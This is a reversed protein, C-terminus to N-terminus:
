ADARVVSAKPDHWPSALQTAIAITAATMFGWPQALIYWDQQFPWLLYLAMSFTVCVATTWLSLRANRLPDALRWWRFVLMLFGFYTLYSLLSHTDGDGAPSDVFFPRVEFMHPLEVVLLEQSAFAFVGLALGIVMMWFRRLSSEGQTGEWLKTPIMVGWTGVISVVSLWAYRSLADLWASREDAFDGLLLSLVLSMVLCVVAGLVMSGLLEAFRERPSKLPLAPIAQRRSHRARRSRQPSVQPRVAGDPAAANAAAVQVAASSQEASNTNTRPDVFRTVVTWLVRYFLYIVGFLILASVLPGVYVPFMWLGAVVILVKAPTNVHNNWTHSLKAFTALIFEAIPEEQGTVEVGATAAHAVEAAIPMAGHPNVASRGNPEVADAVPIPDADRGPRPAVVPATHVRANADKVEPLAAVLEAASSYRVQPDKALAKAAISRYPEELGSVDAEATLHKMLVEGVSEGEFPVRGTLMEYLMVGLAYVDIEKGYRGNAIEPAMYHVTGVSETQGSRRSCSIFKSLGYDGVKVLGQDSFINGPKLDRHVIGSEHLYGVGAAIGHMWATVEGIPMGDPHDVIVDELCDGTVFEMVVWHDDNEDTRIDHLGLLHPHKLNLCHAVGRLEVDLSRRILKLAVEKGGDSVAYYVEGFGGQGVGRKITYGALPKSGSAYTFKAGERRATAIVQSDANANGAAGADAAGDRGAGAAGDRDDQEPSHLNMTMTQIPQSTAM